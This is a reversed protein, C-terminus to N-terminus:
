AYARLLKKCDVSQMKIISNTRIQRVRERSLGLEDSIEELSMQKGNIGFSMRIVAQERCNLTSIVYNLDVHLSEAMVTADTSPADSMLTDLMSRDNDDSTPADVSIHYSNYGLADSIKSIPMDVIEALDEASPSFQHEQEFQAVAKKVKSIKGHLNQPIRVISGQSNIAAQISQRIWWVAYSIFKFGRTEDFRQAATILGLNGENVLDMLGVGKQQYQKAVSVVFRLNGRVLKDLAERDGQHVKHALAVEEDATLMPEKNIDSLYHNLSEDRTTISQTIKLQRM